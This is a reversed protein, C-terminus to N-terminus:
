QFGLADKLQAEYKVPFAYFSKCQIMIENKSKIAEPLGDDRYDAAELAAVIEEETELEGLADFPDGIKPSWEYTFNGVPFIICPQGYATLDQVDVSEGYVFVSSSRAKVGFEEEFWKDMTDHALKSNDLPSRDAKVIKHAFQLLHTEADETTQIEGISDWKMGKKIFGTKGSDRVFQKCHYNILRLVASVEQEMLSEESIFNKFTIM